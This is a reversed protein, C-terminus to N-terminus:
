FADRVSSSSPSFNGNIVQTLTYEMSQSYLTVSADKTVTVDSVFAGRLTGCRSSTTLVKDPNWGSGSYFHVSYTGDPIKFTFTGSGNIYAHRIVKGSSTKISAIVDQGGNIIKVSSSSWDDCYNKSGFCSSYPMTGTRLSNNAYYNKLISSIGRNLEIQDIQATRSSYSLEGLLPGNFSNFTWASDIYGRIQYDSISAGTRRTSKRFDEIVAEFANNFSDDAIKSDHSYQKLFLEFEDWYDEQFVIQRTRELEKPCDECCRYGQIIKEYGVISMAESYFMSFDDILLKKKRDIKAKEIKNQAKLDASQLLCSAIENIPTKYEIEEELYLFSISAKSRFYCDVSELLSEFERVSLSNATDLSDKIAGIRAEFMDHLETEKKDISIRFDDVLGNFYVRVGGIFLFLIALLSIIL